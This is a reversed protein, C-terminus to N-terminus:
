EPHGIRSRIWILIVGGLALVSGVIVLPWATAAHRTLTALGLVLVLLGLYILIWVSREIWAVGKASVM